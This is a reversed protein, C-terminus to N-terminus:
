DNAHAKEFRSPSLLLDELEPLHKVNFLVKMEPTQPAGVCSLRINRDLMEGPLVHNVPTSLEGEYIVVACNACAGGRCAFPWAYGRAEAAELLTEGRTAVFRGYDVNDLDAEAAKEFLDDDDMSWGHDDLVEYNLYYTLSQDPLEDATGASGTGSRGAATSGRRSGGSSGRSSGSGGTTETSGGSPERDDSRASRRGREEDEDRLQEYAERVRRFEERSGGHDPHAEKIRERYAREIERQDAGPDLGLVDFPSSV